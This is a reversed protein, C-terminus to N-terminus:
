ETLIETEQNLKWMNSYKGLTEQVLFPEQWNKAMVYDAGIPVNHPWQINLLKNPDFAHKDWTPSLVKLGLSTCVSKAIM